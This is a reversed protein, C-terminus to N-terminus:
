HDSLDELGEFGESRREIIFDFLKGNLRPFHDLFLEGGVQPGIFVDDFLRLLFDDFGGCFHDFFIRVFHKLFSDVLSFDDIFTLGPNYLVSLSVLPITIGGFGHAFINNSFDCGHDTNRDFDNLIGCFELLILVNGIPKDEIVGM